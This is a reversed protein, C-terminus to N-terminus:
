KGERKESPTARAKKRRPREPREEGAGEGTPTSNTLPTLGAPAESPPYLFVHGAGDTFREM